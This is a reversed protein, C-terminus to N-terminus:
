ARADRRIQWLQVARTAFLGSFAGYALSFAAVFGADGALRPQVALSVGATYKIMFLAVILVLPLWSGAVRLTDSAAHWTAVLRPLLRPGIALSAGIGIAWAALDTVGIGFASVVGALSLVVFAGPLLVARRSGITRTRAQMLGLGILGALLLWIATPTSQVIHALM